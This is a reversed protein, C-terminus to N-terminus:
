GLFEVVAADWAEANQANVAHAADIEVVELGAIRRAEPVLEAFREELVGVTLLTRTKMDHLRHVVPLYPNTHRLTNAIGVADHEAFELALLARTAPPIRKSRGPNIWSDVLASMGQEVTRDALKGVDAHSRQEWTVPDSFASTSNTIVQALVRDPHTLGYRLTLAAGMSQGITVWRDAGLTERIAEFQEVYADPHYTAADNPSPSRGHGWLEVVVPRCVTALSPLNEAWYSRSALMGHVVLAYPGVGPHVVVNLRDSVM